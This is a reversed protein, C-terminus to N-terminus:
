GRTPSWDEPPGMPYQAMAQRLRAAFADFAPRPWGEPPMSSGFSVVRMGRLPEPVPPAPRGFQSAILDLQAEVAAVEGKMWLAVTLSPTCREHANGGRLEYILADLSTRRELWPLGVERVADAVECFVRQNADPAEAAIVWSDRERAEPGDLLKVLRRSITLAPYPNAGQAGM